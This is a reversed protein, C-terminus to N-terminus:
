LTTELHDTKKKHIFYACIFIAIIAPITLGLGGEFGFAGGNILNNEPISNTNFMSSYIKLGSVSVGFVPGMMFNWAAHFAGVLFINDSLYFIFSLIMGALFINLLAIFTVDPSISHLLTFILTNVIIGTWVNYKASLSNMIFGRCVFEEMTGQFFYGFFTTILYLWSMSKLDFDITISGTILNIIFVCFMLLFGLGWGIALNRPLKSLNVGLTKPSRKEFIICFALLAIIIVINSFLIYVDKAGSNSLLESPISVLYQVLFVMVLGFFITLGLIGKREKKTQVMSQTLKM